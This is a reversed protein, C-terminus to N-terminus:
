EVAIVDTGGIGGDFVMRMGEATSVIGGLGAGNAYSDGFWLWGSDLELRTWGGLLMWTVEELM